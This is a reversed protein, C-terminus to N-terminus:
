RKRQISILLTFVFSEGISPVHSPDFSASQHRWHCSKSQEAKAELEPWEKKNLPILRHIQSNCLFPSTFLSKSSSQPTTSFSLGEYKSSGQDQYNNSMETWWEVGYKLTLTAAYYPVNFFTKCSKWCTSIKSVYKVVVSFIKDYM